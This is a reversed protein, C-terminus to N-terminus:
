GQKAGDPLTEATAIGEALATATAPLGYIVWHVWTGAPADPDDCILAFSRTAAPADSWTLAAFCRRRECTFKVPIATRGDLGRQDIEHHKGGTHDICGRRGCDLRSRRIGAAAVPTSEDTGCHNDNLLHCRHNAAIAKQHQLKAVRSLAPFRWCAPEQEIVKIKINLRGREPAAACLDPRHARALKEEYDAKQLAAIGEDIRGEM